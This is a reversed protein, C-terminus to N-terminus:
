RVDELRRRIIFDRMSLHLNKIKNNLIIIEYKNENELTYLIAYIAIMSDHINTEFKIVDSGVLKDDLMNEELYLSIEEENYPAQYSDFFDTEIDFGTLRSDDLVLNFNHKYSGRPTYLSTENLARNEDLHIGTNLLRIAKDCHNLKNENHVYKLMKNLKGIINDDESVLFKIKNITSNVYTRNKEDIETIFDDLANFVDIMEDIDRNARSLCEAESKRNYGMAIIKMIEEDSQFEELRNIIRMRYRNINDSMKLKAYGNEIFDERYTVLNEMLEHPDTEMFVTKIYDKLRSDLRRIARILLKTNRYVEQMIVSYEINEKSNLLSYITYIYGQYEDKAASYDEDDSYFLPTIEGLAECVTIGADSFNLIEIYDNTVDVYIWGCEEMKRLVFNALERNTNPNAEEDDKDEEEQTYSYTNTDLFHVLEDVVIKKEIGLISGNEYIKFAEMILSAYIRKNKSALISFFNEPLFKFLDM